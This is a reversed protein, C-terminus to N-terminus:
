GCSASDEIIRGDVMQLRRGCREALAHNHTVMLVTIGQQNLAELLEIVELGAAQDLNGTPEDALLLRPAMVIARAIAIRQIQGGSLEGPRQMAHDQMGIQQLVQEIRRKREAYPVAALMLPLEINEYASLRPVLHFAQFIFGIHHSRLKARAEEDLTETAQGDLRYRGQDPRDLLGIMNLLTSKGSGSPGTIAVYEGPDIRLDIQRLAHLPAGGVRYTKDVGSLQIM